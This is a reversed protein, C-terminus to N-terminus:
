GRDNDGCSLKDDLKCKTPYVVIRLRPESCREEQYTRLKRAVSSEVEVWVSKLAIILHHAVVAEPYPMSAIM